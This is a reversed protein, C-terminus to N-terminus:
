MKMRSKVDPKLPNPLSLRLVTRSDELHQSKTRRIDSVQRYTIRRLQKAATQVAELPSDHVNTSSFWTYTNVYRVRTNIWLVSMCIAVHVSINNNAASYYESSCHIQWYSRIDGRRFYDISISIVIHRMAIWPHTPIKDRSRQSRHRLDVSVSIPSLDTQPSRITIHAIVVTSWVSYTIYLVSRYILPHSFAHYMTWAFYLFLSM